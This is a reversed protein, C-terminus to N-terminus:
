LFNLALLILAGLFLLGVVVIMAKPIGGKSVSDTINGTMEESTSEIAQKPQSFFDNEGASEGREKAEIRKLFQDRMKEEREQAEQTLLTKGREPPPSQPLSSPVPDTSPPSPPPPPSPSLSPSPSEEKKPTNQKVIENLIDEPTAGREEAKKFFVEKEPNQKRIEDLISKDDIKKERAKQISEVVSMRSTIVAVCGRCPLKSNKVKKNFNNNSVSFVSIM